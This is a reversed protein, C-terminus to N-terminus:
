LHVRVEGKISLKELNPLVVLSNDIVAERGYYYLVRLINDAIFEIEVNFNGIRM